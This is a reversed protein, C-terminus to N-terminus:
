EQNGDSEREILMDIYHRAKMLDEVGNKDKYRCVYKIINGVAFSLNNRHIFDFPQIAMRKYHDGGVQIDTASPESANRMKEEECKYLHEWGSLRDLGRNIFVTLGHNPNILTLGKNLTFAKLFTSRFM